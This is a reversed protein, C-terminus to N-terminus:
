EKKKIFVKSHLSYTFTNLLLPTGFSSLLRIRSRVEIFIESQITRKYYELSGKRIVEKYTSNMKGIVMNMLVAALIYAIIM